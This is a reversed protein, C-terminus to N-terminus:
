RTLLQRQPRLNHKTGGTLLKGAVAFKVAIYSEVIYRKGKIFANQPNFILSDGLFSLKGPVEIEDQLSDLEGPSILVTVLGVSDANAQYANKVKLLSVEDINKIIISSSDQSFKIEPKNNESSCSLTFIAMAVYFCNRIRKYM